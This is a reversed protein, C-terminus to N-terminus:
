VLVDDFIIFGDIVIEMWLCEWVLGGEVVVIEDIIFNVWIVFMFVVDIQFLDIVSIEENYCDVLCYGVGCEVYVELEFSYGDVVIVILCDVDVVQVQFFFQLDGVKVEVFGVVVFCGIQFEVLCSNVFIEKCNLLIDLVDECVGFVM